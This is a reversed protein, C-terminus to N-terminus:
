LNCKEKSPILCLLSLPKDGSNKFQHLENGPVFIVDGRGFSKETVDGVIIGNGDLIFVEHEWDHSHLPTYGDPSIEFHRMVFNKAGMDETIVWRISVGRANEEITEAPVDKYNIVKM